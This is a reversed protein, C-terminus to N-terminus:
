VRTPRSLVLVLGLVMLALGLIRKASLAYIKVGFLGFHDIVSMALIQGLLVCAIANAIGFRPAVWTINLIYFVMFFGGLYYYWPTNAAKFQSPLGETVFLYTAAMCFGVAFLMAAALAPSQLKTGIHANWSAMVPIGIGVILMLLAYLVPHPVSHM